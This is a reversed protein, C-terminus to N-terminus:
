VNKIANYLANINLMRRKKMNESISIVTFSVFGYVIADAFKGLQQSEAFYLYKNFDASPAGECHLNNKVSRSM